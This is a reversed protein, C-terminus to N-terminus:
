NLKETIENLNMKIYFLHNLTSEEKTRKIKSEIKKKLDIIEGLIIPRIDSEDFKINVGYRKYYNSQTKENKM